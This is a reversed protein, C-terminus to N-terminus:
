LRNKRSYYLYTSIDPSYFVLESFFQRTIL